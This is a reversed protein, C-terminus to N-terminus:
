SEWSNQVKERWSEFWSDSFGCFVSMKINVWLRYAEATEQENLKLEQLDPYWNELVDYPNLKCIANELYLETHEKRDMFLCVPHEIQSPHDIQCGNCHSHVEVNILSQLEEIMHKELSNKIDAKRVPQTQSSYKVKIAEDHLLIAYEVGLM